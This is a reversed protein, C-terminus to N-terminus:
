LTGRGPPDTPALHGIASWATNLDGRLTGTARRAAALAATATALEAAADGNNDHRYRQPDARQVVARLHDLTQSLHGVLEVVAGCAAYYDSVEGSATYSAHNSARIQDGAHQLHETLRNTSPEAM